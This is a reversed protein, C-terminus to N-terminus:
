TIKGIIDLFFLAKGIEHHLNMWYRDNSENREKHRSTKFDLSKMRGGWNALLDVVDHSDSM